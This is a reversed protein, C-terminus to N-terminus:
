RSAMWTGSSTFSGFFRRAPSVTAVGTESTSRTGGDKGDGTDARLSAEVAAIHQGRGNRIAGDVGLAVERAEVESPMVQARSDPPVEM